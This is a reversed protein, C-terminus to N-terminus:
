CRARSCALSEPSEPAIPNVRGVKQRAIPPVIRALEGSYSSYLTPGASPLAQPFDSLPGGPVASAARLSVTPTSGPAPGSPREDGLGVGISRHVGM